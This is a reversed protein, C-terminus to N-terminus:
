WVGCVACRVAVTCAFVRPLSREEGRRKEVYSTWHSLASRAFTTYGAHEQAQNTTQKMMRLHFPDAKAIITAMRMLEADLQDAAVVHNVLGLELAEGALVFRQMMMIEKAKRVNLHLDFPLTNYEVLSPMMKMDEAAVVIDCCSLVACAHYICFGKAGGLLPKPLNRWRLCMEVDLESWKEFDGEAGPAYPRSALDRAHEATGLDHGSCFHAGEARLVIVRVADDTCARRLAGDLEYTMTRSMANRYRPRNLSVVAVPGALAYTVQPMQTHSHAESVLEAALPM